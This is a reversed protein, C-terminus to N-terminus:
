KEGENMAELVAERLGAANGFDRVLLDFSYDADIIHLGEPYGEQIRFALDVGADGAGSLAISELDDKLEVITSDDGHNYRGKLCAGDDPSEEIESIEGISSFLQRVRERDFAKGEDTYLMFFNMSGNPDTRSIQIRM